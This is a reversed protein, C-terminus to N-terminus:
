QSYGNFTDADCGRTLLICVGDSDASCRNLQRDDGIQRWSSWQKIALPSAHGCKEAIRELEPESRYPFVVLKIDGLGDMVLSDFESEMGQRPLPVFTPTRPGLIDGYIHRGAATNWHEFFGRPVGAGSHKLDRLGAAYTTRVQVQVAILDSSDAVAASVPAPEPSNVRDVYSRAVALVIPSIISGILVMALRERWPSRHSPPPNSAGARAPALSPSAAPPPPGTQVTPQQTQLLTELRAIVSLLPAAVAEASSSARTSESESTNGPTGDVDYGELWPNTYDPM